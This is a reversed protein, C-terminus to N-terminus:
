NTGSPRPCPFWRCDRCGFWTGPPSFKDAKIEAFSVPRALKRVPKMEVAVAAEDDAKPDSRPEGAVVMEGVVAKEKGTHYFLVQDGPKMQRLHKRALANSVGDWVTGGDRVLDDFSYCRTGAQLAVPGNRPGRRKLELQRALDRLDDLPRALLEDRTPLPRAWPVFRCCPRNSSCPGSRQKSHRRGRISNGNFASTRGGGEEVARKGAEVRREAEAAAREAEAAARRLSSNPWRATSPDECRAEYREREREIESIVSLTELARRIPPTALPAPLADTDLKDAHRLFYCWRDLPGALEGAAALFKPLEIMHLSFDDTFTLHHGADHLVYRTHYAASDPIM